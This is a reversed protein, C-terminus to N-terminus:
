RTAGAPPAPGLSRAEADPELRHRRSLARAAARCAGDFAGLRGSAGTPPTAGPRRGRQAAQHDADARRGRRVVRRVIAAEAENIRREVHSRQGDTGLVVVNDYGFVRGGTVHGARAKRQMAEYTRQRAKERKLEDGYTALSLRIKDTPSDLTRQRDEFYFWVQVGAQV